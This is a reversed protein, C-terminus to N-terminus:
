LFSYIKMLLSSIETADVARVLLCSTVAATHLQLHRGPFIPTVTNKKPDWCSLIDFKLQTM